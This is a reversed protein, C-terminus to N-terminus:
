TARWKVRFWGQVNSTTSGGSQNRAALVADESFDDNAVVTKGVIATSALTTIAAGDATVEFTASDTDTRTYSLAVVTGNFFASFGVVDSLVHGDMGRYYAGPGTNGSRGFQIISSEVSLWKARTGDYRMEMDIATNYYRDGDAPAPITPDTTSAPYDRRGNPIRIVDWADNDGHLIIAAHGVQITDLNTGDSLEVTIAGIATDDNRVFFLRGDQADNTAIAGSPVRLTFASTQFTEVYLPHGGLLQVTRAAVVRYAEQSEPPSYAAGPAAAIEAETLAEYEGAIGGKTSITEFFNKAM